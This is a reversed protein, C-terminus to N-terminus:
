LTVSSLREPDLYWSFKSATVPDLIQKTAHAYEVSAMACWTVGRLCTFSAFKLCRAKLGDDEFRGAIADIYEDVFDEKQKQTFFFETKWFTTTDALFHGIDQAPDALLPKEWDILYSTEGPGNILFNTNNVETNIISHHGAERSSKVYDSAEKIQREIECKVKADCIDSDRYKAYMSECEELMAAFADKAVILRVSKSVNEKSQHPASHADRVVFSFEEPLTLSHIDAFIKTAESLHYSSEYDLREGPLFEEVLVGHDCYKKSGDCYYAHPTRGSNELAKLGTFEYEIQHDIGMQSGREVRLIQKKGTVPHTFIFNQNYEGSALDEYTETVEAPLGLATRYESGSVLNILGPIKDLASEM